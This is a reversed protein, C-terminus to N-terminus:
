KSIASLMLLYAQRCHLAQKWLKVASSDMAEMAHGIKAHLVGNDDLDGIFSFWTSVKAHFQLLLSTDVTLVFGEDEIMAKDEVHDYTKLVGITRLSSIARSKDVHKIEVISTTTVPNLNM